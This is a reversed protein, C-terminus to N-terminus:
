WPGAQTSPAGYSYLLVTETHEWAPAMSLPPPFNLHTRNGSPRSGPLLTLFAHMAAKVAAKM